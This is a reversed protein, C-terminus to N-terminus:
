ETDTKAKEAIVDEAIKVFQNSYSSKSREWHDRGYPNSVIFREVLVRVTQPIHDGILGQHYQQLDNDYVRLVARIHANYRYKETPTLEEGNAVKVIIGPIYESNFQSEALALNNQSRGLIIQARTMETNQRIELALFVISALVALNAGISLWHSIRNSDM